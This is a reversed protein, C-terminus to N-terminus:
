GLQVCSLRLPKAVTATPWGAGEADGTLFCSQVSKYQNQPFRRFYCSTVQSSIALIGRDSLAADAATRPKVPRCRALQPKKAACSGKALWLGSTDYGASPSVAARRLANQILPGRRGGMQGPAHVTGAALGSTHGAMRGLSKVSQTVRRNGPTRSGVAASYAEPLETGSWTV